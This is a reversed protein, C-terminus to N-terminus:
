LCFTARPSTPASSAPARISRSIASPTSSSTVRSLGPDHAAHRATRRKGARIRASRRPSLCRRGRRSQRQQPPQHPLSSSPTPAPSCNAPEPHLAACRRCAPPAATGLLSPDFTPERAQIYQRCNGFSQDIEVSFSDADRLVIHGNARNRRRTELQIGLLGLPSGLTLQERLPDGLAQQAKIQLLKASPSHVFGPEGSLLSAWLRGRVDMSGVVLLPLAEFLERHQEPMHDRIMNRGAANSKIACVSGGNFKKSARTFPSGEHTWGRDIVRTRRQAPPSTM